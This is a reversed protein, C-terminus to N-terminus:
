EDNWSNIIEDKLKQVEKELQENKKMVANLKFKLMKNEEKLIAVETM